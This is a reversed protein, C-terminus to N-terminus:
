HSQLFFQLVTAALSSLKVVNLASSSITAFDGIKQMVSRYRTQAEEKDPSKAISLISHVMDSLEKQHENSTDLLEVIDKLYATNMEIKKLVELSDISAQNASDELNQRDAMKQTTKAFLNEQEKTIPPLSAKPHNSTQWLWNNNVM